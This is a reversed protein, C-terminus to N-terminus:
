PTASLHRNMAGAILKMLDPDGQLAREHFGEAPFTAIIELSLFFEGGQEFCFGRGLVVALVVILVWGVRM